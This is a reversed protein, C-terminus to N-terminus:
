GHLKSYKEEFITGPSLNNNLLIRINKYWTPYGIEGTSFTYRLFAM